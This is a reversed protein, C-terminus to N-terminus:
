KLILLQYPKLSYSLTSNEISIDNGSILEKFSKKQNNFKQLDINFDLQTNSSNIFIFIKNEELKRIVLLVNKENGLFDFQLDGLSLEANNKRISILTKYWKFLDADFEVKDAPRPKNFPHHTEDDYNLEEWVMPKRCDPDDGGWMGVEDGYYIMPAGPMTMQIGVMLKQKEREADTPKRVDFNPNSGAHGLHDYWNDPNVIMTALRETDHSGLLNMLALMNENNYDEAIQLIREAFKDASIKNEKDSVFNKVADTFRYNMVADFADGQLWPAANFMKNEDWKEWWVEGTLYADPNINKVHTRFDKWFNINVMEAVDLRWGDIGDAPDGDGNPDMWREVINFIHKKIPPILGTEDERLEPLDKIGYWGAYDFEDEETEPDDFENIYFWDKYKSKEQNEVVDKFAWFKIGVHNFVGDIIIKMGRKHVEHILELFVKDASTWQWTAPDLPNEGEWIEEDKDPETGFNNDIHRYMTADYKHHSSAEFVPNFYIANIGLEKLYDLQDIVGQLDGGYRRLGNIQYFNYDLKEEYPQRKFWDSTWPIIDWNEPEIFPYINVVDEVTPDNSSNANNFREPFIQYWIATKSWEPVRPIEKKQSCAFLLGTTLFILFTKNM